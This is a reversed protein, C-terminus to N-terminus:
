RRGLRRRPTEDRPVPAHKVWRRVTRAPVALLSAVEGIELTAMYRLVLALREAASLSEL